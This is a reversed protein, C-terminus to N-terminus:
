MTVVTYILHVLFGILGFMISALITLLVNNIFAKRRLMQDHIMRKRQAEIKRREAIFEEYAGPPGYWQFMERIDTEQQAIKMRVSIANLADSTSDGFSLKKFISPKEDESKCWAKLDSTYTAWKSLQAFVDEIERGNNVLTQVGKFAANAAAMLTIPDM